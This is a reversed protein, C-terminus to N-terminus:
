WLIFENYVLGKDEATKRNVGPLQDRTFYILTKLNEEYLYFNDSERERWKSM